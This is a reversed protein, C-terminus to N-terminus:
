FLPPHEDRRPLFDRPASTQRWRAVLWGLAHTSERGPKLPDFVCLKIGRPSFARYEGDLEDRPFDVYAFRREDVQGFVNLSVGHGRQVAEDYLRRARDRNSAPPTRVLFGQHGMRVDERFVWVLQGAQGQQELFAHLRQEAEDFPPFDTDTM